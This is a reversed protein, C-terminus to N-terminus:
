TISQFLSIMQYGYPRKWILIKTLEMFCCESSIIGYKENINVIEPFASSVLTNAFHCLLFLSIFCKQYTKTMDNFLPSFLISLVSIGPYTLVTHYNTYFLFVWKYM